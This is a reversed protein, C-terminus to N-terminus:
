VPPKAKTGNNKPTQRPESGDSKVDLKAKTYLPTVTIIFM